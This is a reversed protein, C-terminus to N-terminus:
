TMSFSAAHFFTVGASSVRMVQSFPRRSNRIPQAREIARLGGAPLTGGALKKKVLRKFYMISGGNIETPLRYQLM